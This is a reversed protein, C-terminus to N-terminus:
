VVFLCYGVSTNSYPALIGGYYIGIGLSSHSQKGQLISFKGSKWGLIFAIVSEDFYTNGLIDRRSMVFTTINECIAIHADIFCLFIM